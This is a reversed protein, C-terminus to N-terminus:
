VGDPYTELECAALEALGAGRLASARSSSNLLEASLTKLSIPRFMKPVKGDIERGFM